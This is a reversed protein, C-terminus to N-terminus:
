HKLIYLNKTYHHDLINPTFNGVWPKVLHKSVYGYLPIVPHDRLAIAEAQKLLAFRKEADTEV